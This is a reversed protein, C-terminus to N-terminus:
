VGLKRARVILTPPVWRMADSWADAAGAREAQPELLVDVGFGARNLSAFLAGLTIVRDPDTHDDAVSWLVPSTDWWARRLVPEVGAPDLMVFAPHPLSFVFPRESRLVRHVQRFVRDLDDVTALGYISVAADITDARVFALEALPGHHTEVRVEEREARERTESLNTVDDDVAIVRAGAKALAVAGAGAGCGLELIRRGDVRGLLKLESETPLGPGYRVADADLTAGTTGSLSFRTWAM